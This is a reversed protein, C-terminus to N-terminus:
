LAPAHQVRAATRDSGSDTAHGSCGAGGEPVEAGTDSRAPRNATAPVPTEQRCDARARVQASFKGGPYSFPEHGYESRRKCDFRETPLHRSRNWDSPTDNAIAARPNTSPGIM